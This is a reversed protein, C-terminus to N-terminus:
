FLHLLRRGRRHDLGRFRSGLLPPLLLNRRLLLRLKLPLPDLLPPLPRPHILEQHLPPAPLPLLVPGPLRPSVELAGFLENLLKLRLCFLLFWFRLLFFIVLFLTHRETIHTVPNEKRPFCQLIVCLLVLPPLAASSRGLALWFPTEQWWRFVLLLLHLLHLLRGTPLPLPASVIEIAVITSLLAFALRIQFVVHQAVEVRIEVRLQGRALGEGARHTRADGPVPDAQDPVVGEDM